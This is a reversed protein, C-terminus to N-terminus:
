INEWKHADKFISNMPPLFTGLKGGWTGPTQQLTTTQSESLARLPFDGLLLKSYVNRINFVNQTSFVDSNNGVDISKSSLLFNVSGHILLSADFTGCRIPMSQEQGQYLIPLIAPMSDFMMIADVSVAVNKRLIRDFDSFEFISENSAFPTLQIFNISYKCALGKFYKCKLRM